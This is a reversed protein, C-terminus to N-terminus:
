QFRRDHWRSLAWQQQPPAQRGVVVATLIVAASRIEVLEVSRSMSSM